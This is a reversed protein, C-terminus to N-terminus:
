EEWSKHSYFEFLCDTKFTKSNSFNHVLDIIYV